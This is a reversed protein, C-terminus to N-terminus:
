YSLVRSLVKQLDEIMFPKPLSDVFGYDRFNAMVPNSAYGSSVIVRAEPDYQRILGITEEGGMGGRITLDTIVCDFGHGSERADRYKRVSERGDVASDYQCGLITLMQELVSIISIDDDVILVRGSTKRPFKESPVALESPELDSAPIFVEFSTGRSPMSSVSIEGGHKKVISYCIALGLGTGGKKTTFFPDFIHSLVDPPIGPGRDTITIKIFRGSGPNEADGTNANGASISIYGGKDQAQRANLVINHIVQGIQGRDVNANWLDDAIELVCDAASGSLAFRASDMIIKRLSSVEKVPAGGRTFTLLQRALDRTKLTAEEASRLSEDQGSKHRAISLNGLVATLMNNLDHAIGGAFVGLTELHSARALEEEMKKNETIDRVILVVGTLKGLEDIVPSCSGSVCITKGNKKYFLGDFSRISRESNDIIQGCLSEPPCSSEDKFLTIVASLDRGIASERDCGILFEAASNMLVIRGMADATIVAEDMAGFTTSLLKKEDSLLKNSVSIESYTATLEENMAELEENAATLEENNRQAEMGSARARDLARMYITFVLYSILSSLIMPIIVDTMYEILDPTLLGLEHQSYLLFFVLIVINLLLYMIILWKQRYVVIPTLTLFCLIYTITDLRYLVTGRDTFIATWTVILLSFLYLHSVPVFHGLRLMIVALVSFIGAMVTSILVGPHVEGTIFLTVILIVSLVSTALTFALLVRAKQQIVYEKDDFRFLFYDFLKQFM